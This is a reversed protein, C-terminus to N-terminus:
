PELLLVRVEISTRPRTMAPAIATAHITFNTFALVDGPQLVPREFRATMGSAEMADPALRDYRFHHMQGHDDARREYGHEDYALHAKIEEVSAPVVALGPADGGAPTLPTWFNIGLVDHQHFMADVHPSLPMDAYGQPEGPFVRRVNTVFNERLTKEPWAAEVLARLRSRRLPEFLNRRGQTFVIMDPNYHVGDNLIERWVNRRGPEEFEMERRILDPPIADYHALMAQTAQALPEIVALPVAQRLLVTGHDLMARRFVQPDAVDGQIQLLRTM